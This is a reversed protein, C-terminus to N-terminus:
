FTLASFIIMTAFYRRGKKSTVSLTNTLRFPYYALAFLTLSRTSRSINYCNDYLWCGVPLVCYVSFSVMGCHKGPLCGYNSSAGGDNMLSHDDMVCVIASEGDPGFGRQPWSFKMFDCAEGDDTLAELFQQFSHGSAMYAYNTTHGYMQEGKKIDRKAFVGRGKGDGAYGAETPRVFDATAVSEHFDPDGGGGNEKWITYFKAWDAESYIPRPLNLIADCNRSTYIQKLTSSAPKRNEWDIVDVDYEYKRTMLPRLTIAGKNRLQHFIMLVAGGFALMYKALSLHDRRIGLKVFSLIYKALSLRDRRRGLQISRKEGDSTTPLEDGQGQGRRKLLSALRSAMSSQTHINKNKDIAERNSIELGGRECHLVKIDM